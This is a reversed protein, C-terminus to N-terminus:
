LEILNYQINNKELIYSSLLSGVLYQYGNLILVGSKIFENIKEDVDQYAIEVPDRTELNFLSQPIDNLGENKLLNVM